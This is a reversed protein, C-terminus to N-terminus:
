AEVAIDRFLLEALGIVFCSAALAIGTFVEDAQEFRTQISNHVACLENWRDESRALEDVVAVHVHVTAADVNLREAELSTVNNFNAFLRLLEDDNEFCNRECFAVNRVVNFDIVVLHNRGECANWNQAVNWVGNLHFWVEDD